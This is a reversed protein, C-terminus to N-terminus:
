SDYLTLISKYLKRLEKREQETMYRAPQSKKEVENWQKSTLKFVVM